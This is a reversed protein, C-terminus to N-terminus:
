QRDRLTWMVLHLALSRTYRILLIQAPHSFSCFAHWAAVHLLMSQNVSHKKPITKELLVDDIDTTPTLQPSPNLLNYHMTGAWHDYILIWSFSFSCHLRNLINICDHPCRGENSTYQVPPIELTLVARVHPFSPKSRYHITPYKCYDFVVTGYRLSHSDSVKRILAPSPNRKEAVQLAAVALSEM